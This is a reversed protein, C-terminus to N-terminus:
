ETPPVSPEAPADAKKGKSAKAKTKKPAKATSSASASATSKPATIASSVKVKEGDVDVEVFDGNAVLRQAEAASTDSFPGGIDEPLFSGVNTNIAKDKPHKKDQPQFKIFM